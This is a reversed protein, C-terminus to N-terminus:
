WPIEFVGPPSDIFLAWWVQWCPLEQEEATQLPSVEPSQAIQPRQPILPMVATEGARVLHMEQRAWQEVFTDSQVIAKWRKLEEQRAELIAIEKSLRAEEQQIRYNATAKRGFDVILSLTLTIAIITLFQILSPKSPHNEDPM